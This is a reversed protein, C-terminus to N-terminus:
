SEQQQEQEQQEQQQEVPNRKPQLMVADYHVITETSCTYKLELKQQKTEAEDSRMSSLLPLLGTNDEPQVEKMEFMLHSGITEDITGELTINGLQLLPTGEELGIIRCGGAEATKELLDSTVTNGLDFVVYTTEEEYEDEYDM